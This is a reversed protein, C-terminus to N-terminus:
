VEAQTAVEPKSTEEPRPTVEPATAEPPPEPKEEVPLGAKEVPATGANGVADTGTKPPYTHDIHLQGNFPSEEPKKETKGKNADRQLIRTILSAKHEKEREEPEEREEPKPDTFRNKGEHVTEEKEDVPAEDAATHRSFTMGFFIVLIVIAVFVLLLLFGIQGMVGVLHESLTNGINGGLWDTRANKGFLWGLLLSLWIISLCAGMFSKFLPLPTKRWILYISWLVFLFLFGFSAIGFGYRIFLFSLYLGLIGLRNGIETSIKGNHLTKFLNSDAITLDVAHTNFFSCFAAFLFITFFLLFWGTLAQVNRDHVWALRNGSGGKKEAPSKRNGTAKKKAKKKKEASVQENHIFHNAM